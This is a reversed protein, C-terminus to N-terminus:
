GYFARFSSLAAAFDFRLLFALTIGFFTEVLLELLLPAARLFLLRAVGREDTVLRETITEGRDVPHATPRWPLLLNRSKSVFTSATVAAVFVARFLPESSIIRPASPRILSTDVERASESISPTQFDVLLAPELVL